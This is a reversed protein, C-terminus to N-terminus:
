RNKIGLEKVLKGKGDKIICLIGKFIITIDEMIKFKYSRIEEWEGSLVKDGAKTFM